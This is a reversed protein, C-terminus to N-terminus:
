KMLIDSEVVRRTIKIRTSDINVPGVRYYLSPKHPVNLFSWIKSIDDLSLNLLNIRIEENKEALAGQLAGGSLTANDYMVQLVRGVIRSEDLVRFNLDATSFATIMYYLNISLPPFQLKGTGISQMNTQRSENEEIQYLYLTLRYDSKDVPSCMGILEPKAIPDPTVNEKLLKLM